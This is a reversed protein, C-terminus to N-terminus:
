GKPYETFYINSKISNDIIAWIWIVFIVSCYFVLNFATSSVRGTVQWLMAIIFPTIAAIIFSVWFKKSSKKYTYIWSFFSLFISLLVAISKHKPTIIIETKGSESEKIQVGCYPCIVAIKKIPKSCKPCYIEDSQKSVDEM